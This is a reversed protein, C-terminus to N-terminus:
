QEVVVCDDFVSEDESYLTVAGVSARDPSTLNLEYSRYASGGVPLSKAALEVYSSDTVRLSLSSYVTGLSQAQCSFDYQKGPVVSFEQYICGANEVQLGSSGNDANVAISTLSASACDIWGTKNDEFDGNSLLNANAPLPNNAPPPCQDFLGTGEAYLTVAGTNSGAPAELTATFSDYASAAVPVSISDLENYSNDYMLNSISAYNLPNNKAQCELTYTKGAEVSYEQYVCGGEKIQMASSGNSSDTSSTTLDASACELWSSEGQEFGGNTLLNNAPQPQPQPQPEPAPEPAPEDGMKIIHGESPVGNDNHLFVFYYGPTAVNSSNPLDVRAKNVDISLPLEIFRQEMNFSHTVASMKVLTARTITQGPEMTLSIQQGHAAYDPASIIVPRQALQGSADFLYPPSFIEANTNLLPGPAGGGALLVRGDRLLTATSHYLRALQSSALTSWTETEPDFLETGLSATNLDNDIHSGGMVLVKGDPLVISEAYNKRSQSMSPMRRVQPTGNTIDILMAGKGDSTGGGLQLIKGPRYMVGTSRDGYPSDSPLQQMYQLSGNNNTDIYYMKLGSIGFVRGDAAVWHHPYWYSNQSTNVGLLSRWQNTEANYVEPTVSHNGAGDVGGVLLMDGNGLMTATPYWRATSMNAARSLTNTSTNFIPSDSVGRNTNGQPRADGGPMIINGSDPLVMAASCFSDVGLTNNLTFHSGPGTGASPDWIDYIFQAGQTGQRDTGYTLVRGDPSNVAHIAILPWDVVNSWKGSNNPKDLCRLGLDDVYAGSRGFIGVAVSGAACGYRNNIPGAGVKPLYSPTGDTSVASALNVCEVSLSGLYHNIGGKFGTVASNQPCIQSFFTGGNGGRMPGADPTGIWNGAGDVDVCVPAVRDMWSGSGGQIGALVQGSGCEDTFATGSNSGTVTDSNIRVIGGQPLAHAIRLQPASGGTASEASLNGVTDSNNRSDLNTGNDCGALLVALLLSMSRFDLTSARLSM